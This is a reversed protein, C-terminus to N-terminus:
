LLLLWDCDRCVFVIKCAKNNKPWSVLGVKPKTKIGLCVEVSIVCLHIIQLEINKRM